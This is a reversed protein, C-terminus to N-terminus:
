LISYNIPNDAFRGAILGSDDIPCVLMGALLGIVRRRNTLESEVLPENM